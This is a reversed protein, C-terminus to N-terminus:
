YRVERLMRLVPRTKKRTNEYRVNDDQRYGSFRIGEPDLERECDDCVTFEETIHKTDQITVKKSTM